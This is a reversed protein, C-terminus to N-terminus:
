NTTSILYFEETVRTLAVNTSLNPRFCFQESTILNHERLYKYVQRHVIREMIKSLIPLITIPRYNNPATPDNAKFPPIIKGKKWIDPFIQSLLSANFIKTLSSAITPASDKLIKASIQDLGTAKKTKLSSLERLVFSEDVEEFEFSYPLDTAPPSQKPQFTSKM